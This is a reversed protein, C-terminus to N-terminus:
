KAPATAPAPAASSESIARFYAEVQKRYEPSVNAARSEYLKKLEDPSLKPAGRLDQLGKDMGAGHQVTPVGISEAAKAAAKGPIATQKPMEKIQGFRSSYKEIFTKFENQTMGLQKLLEPDVQGSRLQKQGENIARGISELQAREQPTLSGLGEPLDVEGRKNSSGSNPDGGAM